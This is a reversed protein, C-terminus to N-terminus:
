GYVNIYIVVPALLLCASQLVAAVLCRVNFQLDKLGYSVTHENVAAEIFAARARTASAITLCSRVLSQWFAQEAAWPMKKLGLFYNFLLNAIM